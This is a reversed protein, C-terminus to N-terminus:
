LLFEQAAKVADATPSQGLLLHTIEKARAIESGIMSEWKQEQWAIHQSDSFNTGPATKIELSQQGADTTAEIIAGGFPVDTGYIEVKALITPDVKSRTFEQGSQWPV